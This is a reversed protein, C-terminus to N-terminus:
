ELARVSAILSSPSVYYLVGGRYSVASDYESVPRSVSLDGTATYGDALLKTRVDEWTGLDGPWEGYWVVIDTGPKAWTCRLGTAGALADLDTNAGPSRPTLGDQSLKANEAGVFATPCTTQASTPATTPTEAPTPTTTALDSASTTATPAPAAVDTSPSACGAMLAVVAAAALLTLRAYRRQTM